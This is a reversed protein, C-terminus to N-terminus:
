YCLGFSVTGQRPWDDWYSWTTKWGFDILLGHEECLDSSMLRSLCIDGTGNGVLARRLM